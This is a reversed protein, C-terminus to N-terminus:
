RNEVPDLEEYFVEEVEDGRLSLHKDNGYAIEEPIGDPYARCYPRETSEDDGKMEIGIWYVCNRALCEPRTLM